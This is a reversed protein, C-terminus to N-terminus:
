RSLSLVRRYLYATQFGAKSGRFTVRGLRTPRVYFVVTGGTGSAKTRAPVGAGSVRVSAGRVAALTAKNRVTITIRVRRGKIPYGRASLRLAKATSAPSPPTVTPPPPPTGVPPPPPTTPAPALLKPLVFQRAATYDGVTGDADVAAVRWWFTGGPSYTPHNLASAFNANDTKVTELAPAFDERASIQVQYRKAGAKENWTLLLRNQGVNHQPNGPERITRTFSSYPTWPGPTTNFTKRPFNARIRFQFVGTGTMKIFTAAAPHLGEGNRKWSGDPVQIEFDYSVAGPVPTWRITPIFDGSTPNGPDLAPASLTKQFTGTESWPLGVTAFSGNEFDVRVRWYLRTDAPYTENSTFATSDTVKDELTTAFTPDQSVQIRYQRVGEAVANWRFVTASTTVSEDAVPGVLTPAASQKAFVQANSALLDGYVESGNPQDAPLVAWHLNADDPYGLSGLQKRPAYAPIRTFAYDVVNTFAADRAVVVYYSEAGAIPKWTFLPMKAVTHGTLPMVYDSAAMQCPAGCAASAPPGTWRFAPQNTGNLYTWDGFVTPGTPASPRDIARVRVCYRAGTTLAIGDQTPAGARPWPGDGFIKDWGLPTWAPTATFKLWSATAWDCGIGNYHTVNVDYGSAGPVSDWVVIPVATDLLTTAGDSDAAPDALNDRMHVNKVSPATVPPVNDFPKTFSPGENWVGANGAGDIARVRWRYERNNDLVVEPSFRTALTTADSTFSLPACCVKSGVPWDPAPAFNIEVEYGAAGAVAPWALQPDFVEDAAVMDTVTRAETMTTPWVWNFSRVASRSGLNGQSDVPTVAWYYTGPALLEPPTFETAQTELPYNTSVMSGLTPDTGLYVKYEAAGSTANWRLTLPTSPYVVSAGNAPAALQQNPAWNRVVAWATAWASVNGVSDDSRVRWYYTGNTLAKDVTARTNKTFFSYQTSNFGPDASLQFEYRIAGDAPAWSFAPLSTTTVTGSTPGSLVPVAPGSKSASGAPAVALVAVALAILTTRPKPVM